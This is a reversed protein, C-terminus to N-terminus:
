RCIPASRGLKPVCRGPFYLMNGRGPPSVYKEQERRRGTPDTEVKPHDRRLRYERVYEDGPWVYPIILGAYDDGSGFKRGVIDAGEANTVRRIMASNALQRDIWRRELGEYDSERLPGGILNTSCRGSHDNHAAKM